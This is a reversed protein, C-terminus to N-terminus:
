PQSPSLPVARFRRPTVFVRGRSTGVVRIFMVRTRIEGDFTTVRRREVSARFQTLQSGALIELTGLEINTDFTLSRLGGVDNRLAICFDGSPQRQLELRRGISQSLRPLAATADPANLAAVTADCTGGGVAVAPRAQAAGAIALLALVMLARNFLKV